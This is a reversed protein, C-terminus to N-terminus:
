IDILFNDCFADATWFTDRLSILATYVFVTRENGKKSEPIEVVATAGVATAAFSFTTIRAHTLSRYFFTLSGYFDKSEQWLVSYKTENGYM